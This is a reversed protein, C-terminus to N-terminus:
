DISLQPPFPSAAYFMTSHFYRIKGKRSPTICKPRAAALSATHCAFCVGTIDIIVLLGQDGERHGAHRFVGGLTLVADALDKLAQAPYHPRDGGPTQHGLIQWQPIRHLLLALAPQLSAHKGREAMREVRDPQQGGPAGLFGRYGNAITAGQM